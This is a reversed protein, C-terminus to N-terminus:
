VSRAILWQAAYYTILVIAPAKHFRLRFRDYALASDSVVFLLAGAAAFAAALSQEHMWRGVALWAMSTLAGAYLAVLPALKGAGEQLRWLLAGAYVLLPLLVTMSLVPTGASLFAAVYCLHAAFFAALGPVFRDRPLMLVVDGLLSCALGAVVARRYFPPATAQDLLAAALILLTTAPKFVYVMWRRGGYEGMLTLFAGAVVLAGLTPIPNEPLTV